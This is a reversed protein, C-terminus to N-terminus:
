YGEEILYVDLDEDTAWAAPRDDDTEFEVDEDLLDDDLEWEGEELLAADYIRKERAATDEPSELQVCSSEPYEEALKEYAAERTPAEVSVGFEEMGMFSMVAHFKIM